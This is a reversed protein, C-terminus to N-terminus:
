SSTEMSFDKSYGSMTWECQLQLQKLMAYISLIGMQELIDTDSIRDQWRLNLTRRLCSLHFYNLRRAQKEYVTWTEAEYLLTPLIVATYLKLVTSLQLGHRNRVTSQLRGFAQSAKLIRCAVEDDIKASCSLTSRLYPLNDAVQLQTGDVSIQPANHSSIHETANPAHGGNEGHKHDSHLERQRCLLSGHEKAHGRGLHTSSATTPSSFKTFPPQPYERNSACGGNISSTATRGTPSASRPVNTVTTAATPASSLLLAKTQRGYIAKIALVNNWEKRDAYRGIEEAKRATWTDRM